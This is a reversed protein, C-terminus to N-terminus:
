KLNLNGLKLRMVRKYGAPDVKPDPIGGSEADKAARNARMGIRSRLKKHSDLLAGYADTLETLQTEIEAIKGLTLSRKNQLKVFEETDRCFAWCKFAYLWSIAAILVAFAALITSLEPSLTMKKETVPFSLGQQAAPKM